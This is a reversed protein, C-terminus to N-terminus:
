PFHVDTNEFKSVEQFLFQAVLQFSSRSRHYEKFKHRLSSITLFFIAPKTLLLLRGQDLTM